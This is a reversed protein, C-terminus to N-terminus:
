SLRIFGLTGGTGIGGVPHSALKGSCAQEAHSIREEHTILLCFAPANAANSNNQHWKYCVGVAWFYTSVLSSSSSSPPYLQQNIEITARTLPLCDELNGHCHRGCAIKWIDMAILGHGSDGAAKESGM